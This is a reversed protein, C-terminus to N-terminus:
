HSAVVKVIRGTEHVTVKVIQKLAPGGPGGTIREFIFVRLDGAKRMSPRTGALHPFKAYVHDCAAKRPSVTASM